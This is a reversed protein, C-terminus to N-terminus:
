HASASSFVNIVIVGACILSIGAVAATDLSQKFVVLGVLSILAIGVGSWIAYAIGTPMSKMTISLLYFCISYTVLAGVTPVIKSMGDSAKLFSTAVVELVIAGALFVYPNM